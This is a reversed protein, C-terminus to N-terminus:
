DLKVFSKTERVQDNFLSVFYKGKALRSVDKTFHASGSM